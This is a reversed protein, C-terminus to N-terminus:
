KPLKLFEAQGHKDLYTKKEVATMTSRKLGTPKGGDHTGPRKGGGTTGDGEFARGFTDSAKMEAVLEEITMPQGKSDGIRVNGDKGIVEVKFDEGDEVVRTARQIHPLLLEISGKEEAIASKAVSDVLLSDIKTRLKTSKTKEANMDETHKALLQTKAAEFKTNAIKDAEKTPDIKELEELRTLAERAKDPDLDKFKVVLKELNAKATREAGLANKLSGVNDLEYGAEAVVDLVFADSEKGDSGKLKFPKYEGRLAEAVDDLKTVIAKLAMTTKEVYLLCGAQRLM